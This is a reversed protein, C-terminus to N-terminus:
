VRSQEYHRIGKTTIRYHPTAGMGDPLADLYGDGAVFNCAAEVEQIDFDYERRLHRHVTAASQAVSSRDYLHALVAHRCDEKRLQDRKESPTM